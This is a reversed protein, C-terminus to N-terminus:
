AHALIYSNLKPTTRRWNCSDAVGTAARSLAAAFHPWSALYIERYDVKSAELGTCRAAHLYRSHVCELTAFLLDDEQRATARRAEAERRRGVPHVNGDRTCPPMQHNDAVGLHQRLVLVPLLNDAPSPRKRAPATVGSLELHQQKEETWRDAMRSMRSMGDKEYERAPM